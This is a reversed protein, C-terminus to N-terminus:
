NLETVTYAGMKWEDDAAFAAALDDLDKKTIPRIQGPFMAYLADLSKVNAFRQRRRRLRESRSHMGRSVTARTMKQGM